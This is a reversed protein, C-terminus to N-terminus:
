KSINSDILKKLYEVKTAKSIRSHLLPQGPPISAVPINGSVVGIVQGTELLILPSGSQVANAPTDFLIEKDKKGNTFGAIIGRSAVPYEGAPSYGFYFVEDGIQPSKNSLKLPEIKFNPWTKVIQTPDLKLLVVDHKIDYDIAGLPTLFSKGDDSVKQAYLSGGNREITKLRAQFYVHACSAIMGESGVFFGIGIGEIEKGDLSIVIRGLSKEVAAILSSDQAYITQPLLFLLFFCLKKM